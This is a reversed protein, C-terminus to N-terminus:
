PFHVSTSCIFCNYFMLISYVVIVVVAKLLLALVEESAEPGRVNKLRASPLPSFGYAERFGWFLSPGPTPSERSAISTLRPSTQKPRGGFYPANFAAVNYRIHM